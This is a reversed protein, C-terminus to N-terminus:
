FQFYIFAKGDEPMLIQALVFAAALGTGLVAAPIRREIRRLDVLASVVWGTLLGGLALSALAFVAPEFSQGGQPWLMKQLIVAADSFTQARFFVWGVSVLGFTGLTFFPRLLNSTTWRPWPIARHLSLLLGHYLGWAVFTWNAGHWLGGLLMTMLLNRYTVWEGHRNGGLPIYLYDRLWSSLTIHWRRWFDAISDALYPLNFNRPLKFGLMHALGVAMDSYGSFDCYIQAAYCVVALWVSASSYGTPQAFVPDVIGALQDAIAAKKFLGLVFFQVGLQLRDWNWRKVQGIQPLFEHPRVIPGAVLHPFFMIYLAYDLLNRVPKIKGQYVDVIYSITEFTYFSIGLPLIIQLVIPDNEFGFLNLTGIATGVLFNTYKFFALLGLNLTISVILLARRKWVTETQQMLRAAIYDVSATFLILLIFIPNWSMYFYCSALLLWGMRLRHLRHEGLGPVIATLYPLTWYVAFVVCFFVFFQFTPFLM